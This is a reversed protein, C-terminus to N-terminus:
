LYYFAVVVIIFVKDPDIDGISWLQKQQEDLFITQFVHQSSDGLQPQYHSLDFSM